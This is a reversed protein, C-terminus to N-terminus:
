SPPDAPIPPAELARGSVRPQEDLLPARSRRPRAPTRSSASWTPTSSDDGVFFAIIGGLALFPGFPVATKRGAKPRGQPRHDRRRRRRRPDARHPHGPAVARGLYLGLVGALKVDGMGMGARTSCPPSSSSRRRGRRRRHAARAPLRHRARRGAVLAAVAAPGTIRNPIIRHDLDILTIPVLATVLLLGSCSARRRRGAHRRRAVYLAATTLEVLPYRASIPQAATAAAAACCGAVLRGPHQRRRKCSRAAARAARARISAAVRRAAAPLHRRQPVLRRAPRRAAALPSARPGHDSALSSAAGPPGISGRPGAAVLHRRAQLGQQRRTTCTRSYGGASGSPQDHLTNGSQSTATVTFTDARRPPSRSARGAQGDGITWAPRHRARRRHM